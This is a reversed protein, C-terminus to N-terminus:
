FFVSLMMSLYMSLESKDYAFNFEYSQLERSTNQKTKNKTQWFSSLHHFSSPCLFIWSSLCVIHHVSVNIQEYSISNMWGLETHTHTKVCWNIKHATKDVMTVMGYWSTEQEFRVYDNEESATMKWQSDNQTTLFNLKTILRLNRHYWIM